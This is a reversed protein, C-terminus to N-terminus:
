GISPELRQLWMFHDGSAFGLHNLFQQAGENDLRCMAAIRTSPADSDHAIRRCLETVMAAGIGLRRFEREVFLNECYVKNIERCWHALCYGILRQGLYAGLCTDPEGVIIRKLEDCTWADPHIGTDFRMETEASKLLFPLAAVTLSKVKINIDNRDSRNRM